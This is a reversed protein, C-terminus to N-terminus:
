FRNVIVGDHAMILTGDDMELMVVYIYSKGAATETDTYTGQEQAVRALLLPEEDEQQRFILLKHPGDMNLPAWELVIGAQDQRCSLVLKKRPAPRELSVETRRDSPRGGRNVAEVWYRIHGHVLRERDVFFNDVRTGTNLQVPDSDDVSRFINYGAVAAHDDAPPWLLMTNGEADVVWDVEHPPSVSANHLLLITVTDSPTSELYGDSVSVVYYELMERGPGAAQHDLFDVTKGPVYFPGGVPLFDGRGDIRRHIRYGFINDGVRRWTLRIDEGDVEWAVDLPAYPKEAYTTFGHVRVSPPQYGFFDQIVIFYFWPENARPVPDIYSDASAPLRTVWEYGDDFNRSRFLAQSVVTAPNSLKWRLQIAKQEAVGSATFRVIHPPALYGMNHAYLIDSRVLRGDPTPAAIYYQYIGQEVLTTDTVMFTISDGVLGVGRWPIIRAFAESGHEARFVDFGTSDIVGVAVWSLQPYNGESQSWLGKIEQAQLLAPLLVTLLIIKKM